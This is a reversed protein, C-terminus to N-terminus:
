TSTSDSPRAGTERLTLDPAVRWVPQYVIMATNQSQCARRAEDKAISMASVIFQLDGDSERFVCYARSTLSGTIM